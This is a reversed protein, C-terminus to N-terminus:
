KNGSRLRSSGPGTSGREGHTKPRRGRKDRSSTTPGSTPGREGGRTDSGDLATLVRSTSHAAGCDRYPCPVISRFPVFRYSLCVLTM